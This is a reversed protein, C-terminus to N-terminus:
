IATVPRKAIWEVIGPHNRTKENLEKLKPYDELRPDLLADAMRELAVAFVIDAVTLSDGVFHGNHGNETVFKEFNKFHTKTDENFKATLEAKKAPDQEGRISYVTKVTDGVCDVIMSVRGFDFKSKGALGFEHALYLAITNSQCLKVGDVDLVPMQGFPTTNKVALWETKEPTYPIRVDEYPQNAAAFVWRSIEAIGRIDFYMLSYKPM